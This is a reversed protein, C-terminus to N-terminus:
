INHNNEKVIENFRGEIQKMDLWKKRKDQMIM